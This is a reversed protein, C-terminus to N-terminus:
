GLDYRVEPLPEPPCPGAGPKLTRLAPLLREGPDSPRSRAMAVLARYFPPAGGTTTVGHRPFLDVAQGPVFAELLLLPFGGCLAPTLYECGGVHAVPFAMAGVEGPPRGRQGM